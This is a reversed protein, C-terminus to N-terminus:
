PGMGRNYFIMIARFAKLEEFLCSHGFDDFLYNCDIHYEWPYGEIYKKKGSEIIKITGKVIIKNYYTYSGM